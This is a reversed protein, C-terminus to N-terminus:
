YGARLVDVLKFGETRDKKEEHDQWRRYLKKLWNM